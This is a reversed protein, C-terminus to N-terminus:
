VSERVCAESVPPICKRQFKRASSSHKHARDKASGHAHSQSKLREKQCSFGAYLPAQFRVNQFFNRATVGDFTSPESYEFISSFLQSRPLLFDSFSPDVLFWMKM